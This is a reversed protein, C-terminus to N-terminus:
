ATREDEHTFPGLRRDERDREVEADTRRSRALQVFGYALFALGILSVSFAGIGVVWGMGFPPDLTWGSLVPLIPVVIGVVFGLLLIGVGWGIARRAKRDRESRTSM